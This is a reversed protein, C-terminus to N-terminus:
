KVLDNLCRAGARQLADLAQEHRKITERFGVVQGQLLAIRQEHQRKTAQGWSVSSGDGLAFSRRLMDQFPGIDLKRQGAVAVVRPEGDVVETTLLPRSKSGDYMRLIKGFNQVEAANTDQRRFHEIERAVAEIVLTPIEKVARRALTAADINPFQAAWDRFTM